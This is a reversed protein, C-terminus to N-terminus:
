DRFNILLERRETQAHVRDHAAHTTTPQEGADQSTNTIPVVAGDHRRLRDARVRERL